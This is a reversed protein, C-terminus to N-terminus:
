LLSPIKWPSVILVFFFGGREPMACVEMRKASKKEFWSMSRREKLHFRIQCFTYICIYVIAAVWAVFLYKLIFCVEIEIPFNYTRNVDIINELILQNQFFFYFLKVWHYKLLNYITCPSSLFFINFLWGTGERTEWQLPLRPLIQTWQLQLQHCRHCLQICCLSLAEQTRPTSDWWGYERYISWFM